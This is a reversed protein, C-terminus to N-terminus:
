PSASLGLAEVGEDAGVGAAVGRELGDVLALHRDDGRDVPEAEAAADAQDAVGVDDDGGVVGGEPQGLDVPAREAGGGVEGAEHGLVLHPRHDVGGGGGGRLLEVVEPRHQRDHRRVSQAVLRHGDGALDGGLRGGHDPGGLRTEVADVRDVDVARVAELLAERELEVELADGVLVAVGEDVLSLGVGRHACQVLRMVSSSTTARSSDPIVIPMPPQAARRLGIDIM